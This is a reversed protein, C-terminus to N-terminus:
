LATILLKESTNDTNNEFTIGKESINEINWHNNLQLLAADAGSFSLSIKKSINDELWSGEMNIGDKSAIVKGSADFSFSYGEFICTNDTTANDFCNVKWTSRTVLESVSNSVGIHHINTFAVCYFIVSCKLAFLLVPKKM